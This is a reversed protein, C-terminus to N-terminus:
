SINCIEDIANSFVSIEKETTFYSPSVRVSGAPSTGIHKHILPACHLGSRVIINFMNELMYGVDDPSIGGINFSFVTTPQNCKIGPYIKIRRKESLHKRMLEILHIKHAFINDIGKELVFKIGENLAFIGPINPTGAEYYIPLEEPQFLYDSRVGTGGIILPRLRVKEGIYAGGIGQIGYLSKHGTFALFDINMKKIDIPIIGASQSADVVFPIGKMKAVKGISYLDNITGTVNSCHNIIVCATNKKIANIVNKPQIFGFEDCDVITINIAKERELTKLPRLVSNHEVVTTVVHKGKLDLGNIILNLSETANSTFIIRNYDEGNFLDCLLKRCETIVDFAEREFGMRANHFPPTEIVSKLAEVVQLPKPFSTAANNLYIM